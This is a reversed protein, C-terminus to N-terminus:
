NITISRPKVAEPKGVSVTLVGNEMRADVNEGDIDGPLGIVRSFRGADRERRHYRVGEGEDSIKREGTILLNRGDVQLEIEGAKMGPLEARVVLSKEKEIVELPPVLDNEADWALPFGSLFTNFLRDLDNRRSAAPYNRRLVPFM